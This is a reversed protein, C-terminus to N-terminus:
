ASWGLLAAAARVTVNALVGAAIDDATLGVGHPFRELRRIGLPKWSDFLRFAVFAAALWTWDRPLWLAAAWYGAIEDVIIRPDDKRGMAQEALDGIWCAAAFMLLVAALAEWPDQPVLYWLAWGWVTGFLGAGTLPLRGAFRVPIYSIFLGSALAKAWFRDAPELATVM